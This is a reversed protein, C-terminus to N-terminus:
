RDINIENMHCEVNEEITYDMSKSILYESLEVSDVNERYNQITNYIEKADAKSALCIQYKEDLFEVAAGSGITSIIPTGYSAAENIVLGWCEQRSPLLLFECNAYKKELQEFPIFPIVKINKYQKNQLENHVFLETRKGMGIFEYDHSADLKAVEAALDMGKYDYYQGVILIPGSAYEKRKRVKNHELENKTLSSFHYTVVRNTHLIKRVADSAYEGAVFYGKAGLLVRKKLFTKLGKQDFYPAGDLNIYYHHKLLKLLLIGITQVPSNYCGFIIVDYGKFLEKLTKLSLSSENGIGIGDCFLVKYSKAISKSWDANRNSSNKREYLVTLDCYKSLENFFKVRYPVEINTLYLVTKM